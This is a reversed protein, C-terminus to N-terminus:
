SPPSPSHAYHTKMVPHHYIAFLFTFQAEQLLKVQNQPSLDVAIGLAQLVDASGSKSTISRNGHKAVFLGCASCLLAVTSSINFSGSHDGGTGCSDVIKARLKEDIPLDIAHCRMLKAGIAIEQESEGRQYMTILMEKAEQESLENNFLRDFVEESYISSM